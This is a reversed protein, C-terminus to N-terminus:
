PSPQPPADSLLDAYLEPRRDALAHSLATLRKARAENLDLDATARGNEEDCAARVWGCTDVVASGRTWREGRETGSRDCCAIFVRNARAAAMAAVVEPPHEGDPRPVVPWNTPVALLDAGRLALARPMEPFELDYCILVGIRGYPADVVPPRATGPSFLLKERDWLHTKRYVARVGSGDMVVASNYLLGDDGLECFGGVVVADGRGAEAAWTALLPDEPALAARRAEAADTFLYGSTALEPLVVIHAGDAVAARIAARAREVNGAVDGLVPALQLCAVRIM